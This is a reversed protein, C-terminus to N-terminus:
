DKNINIFEEVKKFGDYYEMDRASLVELCKEFNSHKVLENIAVVSTINLKLIEEIRDKNNEILEDANKHFDLTIDRFMKMTCYGYLKIEDFRGPRLLRKNILHPNNTTAVIIRDSDDSFSDLMKLMFEEDSMCMKTFKQYEAILKDKEEKTKANAIESSYNIKKEAINCLIHDCDDLAIVHTKKYERILDLAKDKNITLLSSFLLIHRDLYNAIATCSGTKCTGPPGHLLLGLKNDLSLSKPYLTNTKFKDLLNILDEKGEFHLKDFTKRTNVKGKNILKGDSSVEFIYKEKATLSKNEKIFKKVFLTLEDLHNCYISNKHLIIYEYKKNRIFRHIPMDQLSNGCDDNLTMKQSRFSYIMETEKSNGFSGFTNIIYLSIDEQYLVFYDKKTAYEDDNNVNTVKYSFKYKCINEAAYIAPNVKEPDFKDTLKTTTIDYWEYFINFYQPIYTILSGFILCLIGILATDLARKGTNIYESALLSFITNLHPILSIM